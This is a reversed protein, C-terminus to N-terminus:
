GQRSASSAAAPKIAAKERAETGVVAQESAVFFAALAAATVLWVKGSVSVPPSLSHYDRLGIAHRSSRWHWVLALAGGVVATAM